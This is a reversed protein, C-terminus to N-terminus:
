YSRLERNRTRVLASDDRDGADRSPAARWGAARRRGVAGSRPPRPRGGGATQCQAQETRLDLYGFRMTVLKEIALNRRDRRKDRWQEGAPHAAAGTWNWASWISRMCTTWTSARAASGSARRARPSPFSIGVSLAVCTGASSTPCRVRDPTALPPSRRGGIASGREGPGPGDRLRAATTLQGGIARCILDYRDGPTTWGRLSISCRTSSGPGPRRCCRIGRRSSSGRGTCSSVLSRARNQGPQDHSSRDRPDDPEAAEHPRLARRCDPPEAGGAPGARLLTAWLRADRTVEGSFTAYVGRQIRQWEGARVRHRM